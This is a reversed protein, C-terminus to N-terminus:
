KGPVLSHHLDHLYHPGGEFPGMCAHSHETGRVRCCAVASGCGWSQSVLLYIISPSFHWSFLEACAYCPSPLNRFYQPGVLPRIFHHCKFLTRFSDLTNATQPNHRGPVHLLRCFDWFSHGQCMWPIFLIASTHVPESASSLPSSHSSLGSLYCPIRDQLVKSSM